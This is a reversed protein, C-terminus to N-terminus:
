VSFYTISTVTAVALWCFGCVCACVRVRVCLHVCVGQMQHSVTGIAPLVIGPGFEGGPVRPQPVSTRRPQQDSGAQKKDIPPTMGEM